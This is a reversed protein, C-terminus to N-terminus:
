GIGMEKLAAEDVSAGIHYGLELLSREGSWCEGCGQCKAQPTLGKWYFAILASEMSGDAAEYRTAGCAPCAGILSKVTPPDFLDWIRTCWRSFQATIHTLRTVQIQHSAHLAKLLGALQLLADRLDPEPRATTLERLWARVSGDIHEWLGFAELNLLSREADPSRGAATKGLSSSKAQALMTLLAPHDIPRYTGTGSERPGLVESWPRTLKEVAADTSIWDFLTERDSM